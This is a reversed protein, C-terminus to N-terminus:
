LEFHRKAAFDFSKPTGVQRLEINDDEDKGPPVDADLRNPLGTLWSEVQAGLVKEEAELAPIEDKLGAVEAMLAEAAVNDGSGKAKGIEKSATKRRNRLEDLRTQMARRKADSELIQDALPDLGRRALAADFAAPDERLSKLDHM